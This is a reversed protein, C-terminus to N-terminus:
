KESGHDGPMVKAAADALKDKVVPAKDRAVEAAQQATNVTLDAAQHAAQQVRPDDRVNRAARRIQEYRHRGARSGLVYGIVLGIVFSVKGM